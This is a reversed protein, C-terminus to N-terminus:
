ENQSLIDGSLEIYLNNTDKHIMDQNTFIYSQIDQDTKGLEELIQEMAVYKEVIQELRLAVLNRNANFVIDFFKSKVSGTLIDDEDENFM